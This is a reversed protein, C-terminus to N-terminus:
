SYVKTFIGFEDYEVQAAIYESAGLVRKFYHPTVGEAASETFTGFPSLRFKLKSDVTLFTFTLNMREQPPIQGWGITSSITSPKLAAYTGKGNWVFGEQDWRVYLGPQGFQQYMIMYKGGGSGTNDFEFYTSQDTSLALTQVHPRDYVVTTKNSWFMGNDAKILFPSSM